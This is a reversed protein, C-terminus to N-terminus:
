KKRFKFRRRHAGVLQGLLTVKYNGCPCAYVGKQPIWVAVTSQCCPTPEKLNIPKM